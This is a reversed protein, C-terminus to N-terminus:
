VNLGPSFVRGIVEMMYLNAQLYIILIEKISIALQQLAGTHAQM